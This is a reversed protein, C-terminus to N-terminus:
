GREFGRGVVETLWRKAMAFDQPILEHGAKQFSIDVQAGAEALLRALKEADATSVLMDVAGSVILVPANKLDPLPEPRFIMAPRLLVAGAITGPRLLMLSTAIDAGNSFGLAFIRGPDLGYHAAASRIWESLEEARTRIEGEDASGSAAKTFFSSEGAELVKGRPSLVSAAPALARGIPLLDDENGGPGHL